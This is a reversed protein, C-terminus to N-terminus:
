LMLALLMGLAALGVALLEGAPAAQPRSTWLGAPADQAQPLASVLSDVPKLPITISRTSM